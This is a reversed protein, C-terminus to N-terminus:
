DNPEVQKAEEREKLVELIEKPSLWIIIGNREVPVSRGLLAHERLAVSVGTRIAATTEEITAIPKM